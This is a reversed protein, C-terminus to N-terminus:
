GKVSVANLHYHLIREAQELYSVLYLSKGKYEEPIYYRVGYVATSDHRLVTDYFEGLHAIQEDTTDPPYAGVAAILRNACYIGFTPPDESLPRDMVPVVNRYTPASGYALYTNGADGIRIDSSESAALRTGIDRVTADIEGPTQDADIIVYGIYLANPIDGNDKILHSPMVVFVTSLGCNLFYRSPTADPTADQLIDVHLTADPLGDRMIEVSYLGNAANIDTKVIIM